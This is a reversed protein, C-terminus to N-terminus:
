IKSKFVKTVSPTGYDESNNITLYMITDDAFLRVKSKIGNPLDNIYILFLAPGIVSGQPVGSLVPVPASREGDVVVCQQRNNLFNKLWDLTNNRIGYYKLKLLLRNHPVKVFAKSFDMVIVDTQKTNRPTDILDTVFELLQTECSRNSKILELPILEINNISYVIFFLLISSMGKSSNFVISCLRCESLLLLTILEWPCSGQVGHFYCVRHFM